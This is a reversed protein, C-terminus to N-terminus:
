SEKLWQENVLEIAVTEEIGNDVLWEIWEEKTSALYASWKEKPLYDSVDIDVWGPMISDIAHRLGIGECVEDFTKQAEDLKQQALRLAERKDPAVFGYAFDCRKFNCGKKYLTIALNRTIEDM